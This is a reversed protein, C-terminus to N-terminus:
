DVGGFDEEFGGDFGRFYQGEEGPGEEVVERYLIVVENFVVRRGKKEKMRLGDIELSLFKSQPEPVPSPVRFGIAERLLSFSYQSSEAM